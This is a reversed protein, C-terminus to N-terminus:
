GWRWWSRPRRVVKREELKAALDLDAYVEESLEPDALVRREFDEREGIIKGTASRNEPLTLDSATGVARGGRLQLFRIM